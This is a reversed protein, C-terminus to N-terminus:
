MEEDKEYINFGKDIFYTEVQLFTDFVSLTTWKCETCYPYFYTILNDWDTYQKIIISKQKCKPCIFM